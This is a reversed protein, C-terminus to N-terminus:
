AAVPRANDGRRRVAAREQRSQRRGDVGRAGSVGHAFQKFFEVVAGRRDARQHQAAAALRPEADVNELDLEALLVQHRVQEGGGLDRQGFQTQRRTVALLEIHHDAAQPQTVRGLGREVLRAGARQDHHFIELGDDVPM